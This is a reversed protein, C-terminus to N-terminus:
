STESKPIRVESKRGFTPMNAKNKRRGCASMNGYNGKLYSNVGIQESAFQSQKKLCGVLTMAFSRLSQPLRLGEAGLVTM